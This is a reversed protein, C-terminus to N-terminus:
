FEEKVKLLLNKIKNNHSIWVFGHRLCNRAEELEADTFKNVNILIKSWLLIGELRDFFKEDYEANDIVEYLYHILRIPQCFGANMITKQHDTLIVKELENIIQEIEEPTKLLKREKM